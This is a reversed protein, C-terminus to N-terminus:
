ANVSESLGHCTKVCCPLLRWPVFCGAVLAEACWVPLRWCLSQPMGWCQHCVRVGNVKPRVRGRYFFVEVALGHLAWSSWGEPGSKLGERREGCAQQLWGCPFQVAVAVLHDLMSCDHVFGRVRRVGAEAGPSWPHSADCWHHHKGLHCLQWLPFRRLHRPKVSSQWAIKVPVM